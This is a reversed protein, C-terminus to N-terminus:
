FLLESDVTVEQGLELFADRVKRRTAWTELKCRVVLSPQRVGCM